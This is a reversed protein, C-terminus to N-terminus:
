SSCSRTISGHGSMVGENRRLTRAAYALADINEDDYSLVKEYTEAAERYKKQAAYISGLFLYAETDEDDM